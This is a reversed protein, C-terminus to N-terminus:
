GRLTMARRMLDSSRTRHGAALAWSGGNLSMSLTRKARSSAKGLLMPSTEVVGEKKPLNNVRFADTLRPQVKSACYRDMGQVFYCLAMGGHSYRDARPALYERSVYDVTMGDPISRQWEEMCSWLYVAQRHIRLRGTDIRQQATKFGWEIQDSTNAEGPLCWLHVGGARLNTLWSQQDSERQSGAPDGFHLHRRPYLSRYANSDSAAITWQTQSWALSHEIWLIDTDADYLGLLNCLLSPGSGFDWAGFLIGKELLGEPRSEDDYAVTSRPADYILGERNFFGYRLAYEKDFEERSLPGNPRVMMEPFDRGRRPDAQWDIEFIQEPPLATKGKHLEYTLHGKPGPNYVLFASRYVSVLARWTAAMIPAKVDAAEDIMVVTHRKGRGFSPNTSEGVIRSGNSLNELMMYNDRTWESPPLMRNGVKRHGLIWSPQKGLIWRLKPFLADMDGRKDVLDKKRSGILASFDSEFLWSHLIRHLFWWTIGMERCKPVVGVEERKLRQDYWLALEIQREWPVFPIVKSGSSKPGLLWGYNPLWYDFRQCKRKEERLRKARGSDDYQLVAAHRVRREM